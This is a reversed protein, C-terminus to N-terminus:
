LAFSRSRWFLVVGCGLAVINAWLTCTALVTKCSPTRKVSVNVGVPRPPADIHDGFGDRANPIKRYVLDDGAALCHVNEVRQHHLIAGGKHVLVCPVQRGVHKAAHRHRGYVAWLRLFGDSRGSVTAIDGDENDDAHVPPLTQGERVGLFADKTKERPNM